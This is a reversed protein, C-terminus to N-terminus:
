GSFTSLTKAQRSMLGLFKRLNTNEWRAATDELHRRLDPDLPDESRGPTELWMQRYEADRLIGQYERPWQASVEVLARYSELFRDFDGNLGQEKLAGNRLMASLERTAQDLRAECSDLPFGAVSRLGAATQLVIRMAGALEDAPQELNFYYSHRFPVRWNELGARAVVLTTLGFVPAAHAAFSDACIAADSQEMQAFVQPLTLTRTGEARAVSFQVGPVARAAASRALAVAFRETGLNAGPDLVFEVPKDPSRDFISALLRSWYIISPDYKSTFPSVFIRCSVDHLREQRRILSEYRGGSDIRIGLWESLREMAAYYNIPADLPMSTTHVRGECNDVTTASQAGLSLEFYRRIGPDHCVVPVLGPKEFDALMVADFPQGENEGRLANLLQEHSSYEIVQDVGEVREWLGPYGSMVVVEIDARTAKIWRPLPFLIIEDGIGIAPGLILLLRRVGAILGPRPPRASVIYHAPITVPKQTLALQFQLARSLTPFNAPQIMKLQKAIASLDPSGAADLKESLSKLGALRRALYHLNSRSVPRRSLFFLYSCLLSMALRIEPSTQDQNVVSPPTM